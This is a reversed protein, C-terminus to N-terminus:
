FDGSVTSQTCKTSMFHTNQPSEILHNLQKPQRTNLTHTKNKLTKKSSKTNEGLSFMVDKGRSLDKIM